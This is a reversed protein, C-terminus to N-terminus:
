DPDYRKEEDTAPADQLPIRARLSTGRGLRSQIDLSGKVLALREQMGLLGLGRTDGPRPHMKEPDFGQGDDVLLIELADPQFTLALHASTAESHRTVNQVAEQIVRFAATEIQEPLRRIRPRLNFIIRHVDALADYAGQKIYNLEARSAGSASPCRDRVADIRLSLALLAQSTEDHLDRAIRRREEEQSHILRRLLAQQEVQRARLQEELRVSGLGVGLLLALEEVLCAFREADDSSGAPRAAGLVGVPEGRFIMPAAAFTWSAEGVQVLGQRAQRTRFSDQALARDRGQWNHCDGRCAILTLEGTTDPLFISGARLVQLAVLGDLAEELMPLLAVHRSVARVVIRLSELERDATEWSLESFNVKGLGRTEM